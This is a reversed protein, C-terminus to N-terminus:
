GLGDQNELWIKLDELTTFDLLADGLNELQPIALSEIQNHLDTPIIGLRRHLQRFILTREGILEGEERGEEKAEQYFRTNKLATTTLGLMQNIEQRSLHTFKYVLITTLLDIIAKQSPEPEQHSRGLIQRAIAPVHDTDVITLRMLALALPLQDPHPLEDLYIRHVRSSNVLDAYPTYGSQETKRSPYIIVAQWDSFRPRHRYFYLLSECFLREYLTEDKQFQVECFYVIAPSQNEPPIFVGDITFSTEKIEVSAFQYEATHEPHPDLLQFLLNPFQQFLKYFISDRRM